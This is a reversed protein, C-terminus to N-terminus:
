SKKQSWKPHCAAHLLGMAEAGTGDSETLDALVLLGGFEEDPLEWEMLENM